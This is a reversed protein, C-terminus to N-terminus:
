NNAKQGYEKRMRKRRSMKIETGLGGPEGWGRGRVEQAPKKIPPLTNKLKPFQNVPSPITRLGASQEPIGAARNFLVAGRTSDAVAGIRKQKAVEGRSMLNALGSIVGGKGHCGGKGIAKKIIGKKDM